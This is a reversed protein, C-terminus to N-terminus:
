FESKSFAMMYPLDPLLVVELYFLHLGHIKMREIQFSMDTLASGSWM